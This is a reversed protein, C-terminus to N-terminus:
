ENTETKEGCMGRNGRWAVKEFVDVDRYKYKSTDATYIAEFKEQVTKAPTVDPRPFPKALSNAFIPCVTM